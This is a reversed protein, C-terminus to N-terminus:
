AIGLIPLSLPTDASSAVRILAPSKRRSRVGKMTVKWVM